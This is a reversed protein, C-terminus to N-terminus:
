QDQTPKKFKRDVFRSTHNVKPNGAVIDEEIGCENNGRYIKFYGKDGWDSNWSNAVLWYPSGNETGWGLIRVAHGGLASGAKHQYVGSKYMVFDEYVTFAAEVPGNTMIEKQISSQDSNVGYAKSGFHKDKAYAPLYSSQCKQDCKPTPELSQSCPPLSGNVHHECPAFPYPRCGDHTTFTGGSVLGTKVWFNWAARPDGGECGFGCMRCCSLLDTASIHPRDNGNSSICIRDSIAEVAGFAWCSGCNSQDRVEAISPCNPWQTRADFLDPVDQDGIGGDRMLIPLENGPIKRVGMMGRVVPTSVGRFYNNHGATWTTQLGNIYNVMDDTFAKLDTRIAQTWVSAFLATTLLIMFNKM